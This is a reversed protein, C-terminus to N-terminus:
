EIWPDLNTEVVQGFEPYIIEKQGRYNSIWLRTFKINDYRMNETILLNDGEWPYLGPRKLERLIETPIRAIEDKSDFNYKHWYGLGDLIFVYNDYRKIDRVETLNEFLRQSRGPQDHSTFIVQNDKVMLVGRNDPTWIINFRNSLETDSGFTKILNGSRDSYMFRPRNIDSSYGTIYIIKSLDDSIKFANGFPYPIPINISKKSELDYEKLVAGGESIWYVKNMFNALEFKPNQNIWNNTKELVWTSGKDIDLAMFGTSSAFWVVYKNNQSIQYEFINNELSLEDKKLTYIKNAKRNSPSILILDLQDRIVVLKDNKLQDFEVFSLNNHKDSEQIELNDKQVPNCSMLTMTILVILLWKM